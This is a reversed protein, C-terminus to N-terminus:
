ESESVEAVALLSVNGNERLQENSRGLPLVTPSKPTKVGQFYTSPTLTHKPVGRGFFAM